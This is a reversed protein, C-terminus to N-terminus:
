RGPITTTMLGDTEFPGETNRGIGVRFERSVPFNVAFFHVSWAGWFNSVVVSVLM